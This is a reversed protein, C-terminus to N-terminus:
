SLVQSNALYFWWLRYICCTNILTLLHVVNHYYRDCCGTKDISKVIDGLVFVFFRWISFSTCQLNKLSMTLSATKAIAWWASSFVTVHRAIWGTHLNRAAPGYQVTQEPVPRLVAAYMCICENSVLLPWYVWETTNKDLLRVWRGLMRCRLVSCGIWLCCDNSQVDRELVSQWLQRPIILFTVFVSSM